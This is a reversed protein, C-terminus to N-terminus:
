FIFKHLKSGNERLWNRQDEYNPYISGVTTWFKKSHDMYLLHAIEHAVVYSSVELPAMILRWSFMLRRDSSCSGWRSKPDKLSIKSFTVGLRDAYHDCTIRFYDDAIQKLVSKVHIEFPGRVKPLILETEKFIYKNALNVDMSIKRNQGQIPLLIGDTILVSPSLKRLNSRVWNLNKNLFTRLISFQLNSPITVRLGGTVQCVRLTIRRARSSKTIKIQFKFEEELKTTYLDVVQSSTSQSFFKYFNSLNSSM